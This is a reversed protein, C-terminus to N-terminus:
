LIIQNDLELFIIMIVTLEFFIMGPRVNIHLMHCDSMRKPSAVHAFGGPIGSCDFFACM